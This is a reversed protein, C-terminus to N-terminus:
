RRYRRRNGFGGSAYSMVDILLGLGIWVWDFGVIGGPYTILYFISTWPLFLWGLFAMIWNGGVGLRIYVPNILWWILLAIRPGFVVLSTFFCCM